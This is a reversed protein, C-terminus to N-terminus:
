IWKVDLINKYGHSVQFIKVSMQFRNNKLEWKFGLINKCENSVQIEKVGIQCRNNKKVRM